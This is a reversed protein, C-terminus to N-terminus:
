NPTPKEIHDIVIIRVPIKQEELRLGLQSLFNSYSEAQSHRLDDETPPLAPSVRAPQAAPSGSGRVGGDPYIHVFEYDYLGTLGTRNLVPSLGRSMETFWQALDDMSTRGRTVTQGRENSENLPPQPLDASSKKLAAKPGDKSVVMVYGPREPTEWHFSLMFRDALMSQLMLRLQDLNATAPDEAVADIQFSIVQASGPGAWTPGNTVLIDAGIGYAFAILETTLISGGLCHGQPVDYRERGSMITQSSADSGHCAIGRRIGATNDLPLLRRGFDNIKISAAAFDIRPPPVSVQVAAQQLLALHEPAHTSWSIEQSLSQIGILPSTSVQEGSLLKRENSGQQVHVEGEIVAVRSGSEEANVLFVTGVVSVTVDKTRVYLHGDKQKAATVIIGGRNLEIRDGDHARELRIESNARMEIRSGDSLIVTTNSSADSQIPQGLELQTLSGDAHLVSGLSAQRTREVFLAVTALLLAAVPLVIWRRSRPMRASAVPMSKLNRWVRDGAAEVDERSASPLHNRLIHDIDKPDPTM